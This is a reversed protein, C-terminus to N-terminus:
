SSKGSFSNNQENRLLNRERKLKRRSKFVQLLYTVVFNYLIQLGNTGGELIWIRRLRSPLEPPSLFVFSNFNSGRISHTTLSSSPCITLRSSSIYVSGRTRNNSRLLRLPPLSALSSPPRIRPPPPAACACGSYNSKGKQGQFLPSPAKQRLTLTLTLFNDSPALLGCINSKHIM